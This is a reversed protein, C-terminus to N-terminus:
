AKNKRVSYKQNVGKRNVGIKKEPVFSPRLIPVQHIEFLDAVIALVVPANARNRKEM